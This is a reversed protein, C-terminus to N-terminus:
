GGRAHHRIDAALESRSAYQGQKVYVSEGRSDYFITAPFGITAELYRAIQQDPDSYSPYPVPLEGLFTHAAAASDNSDVGLFAIRKGLKASLDQFWPFEERCPGCWSAWKNVVVPHGRLEALRRQFAATGGPLLQNAQDYLRALPKPAGALARKYDPAGGGAGSSGSGCAALAVAVAVVSAVTFCAWIRGGISSLRPMRGTFVARRGM